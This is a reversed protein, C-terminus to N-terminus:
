RRVLESVLEPTAGQRETHDQIVSRCLKLLDRVDGWNSSNAVITKLCPFLRNLHRTIIRVDTPRLHSNGVSLVELNHSIVPHQSSPLIPFTRTNIGVGLFRLRPCLLAIRYLADFTVMNARPLALYELAPFANAIDFYDTTALSTILISVTEPYIRLDTLQTLSTLPSVIGRFDPRMRGAPIQTLFELVLVIKEMNLWCSAIVSVINKLTAWNYEYSDTSYIIPFKLTIRHIFPISNRNLFSYIQTTNGTLSLHELSASWVTAPLNRGMSGLNLALLKIFPLKSINQIILQFIDDKVVTHSLNLSILGSLYGVHQHIRSPCVGGFTLHQLNQAAGLICTLLSDVLNQNENQVNYIEVRRLTTSVAMFIVEDYTSTFNAIYLTDLNPLLSSPLYRAVANGTYSALPLTPLSIPDHYFIKIRRAYYSVRNWVDSAHYLPIGSLIYEGNQLGFDEPPLLNLLPYVSHMSRWLIDLAPELFARCTLATHLLHERTSVFARYHSLTVVRPYLSAFIERVIDDLGLARSVANGTELGFPLLPESSDSSM